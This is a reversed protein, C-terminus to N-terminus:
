HKIPAGHDARRHVTIADQGEDPEAYIVVAYKPPMNELEEVPENKIRDLVEQRTDGQVVVPIPNGLNDRVAAEWKGSGVNRTVVASWAKDPDSKRPAVAKDRM